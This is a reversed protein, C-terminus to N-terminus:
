EGINGKSNNKDDKDNNRILVVMSKVVRMIMLKGFYIFLSWSKETQSIRM